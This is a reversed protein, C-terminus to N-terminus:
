YAFIAKDATIGLSDLIRRMEQSTKFRHTDRDMLDSWELQIAGSIHGKRQDRRTVTGDYEGSTRTDWNVVDALSCGARVDDLAVILSEHIRPTFAANQNLVPPDFSVPHGESAWRRWGG